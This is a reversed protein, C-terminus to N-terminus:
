GRGARDDYATACKTCNYFESDCCPCKVWGYEIGMSSGELEPMGADIAMERTVFHEGIETWIWGGECERCEM